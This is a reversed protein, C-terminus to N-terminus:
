SSFVNTKGGKSAECAPLSAPCPGGLLSVGETTTQMAAKM